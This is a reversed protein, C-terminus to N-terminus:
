KDISNYKPYEGFRCLKIMELKMECIIIGSSQGVNQLTAILQPAHGFLSLSGVPFLLPDRPAHILLLQNEPILQSSKAPSNGIVLLRFHNSLKNEHGCHM